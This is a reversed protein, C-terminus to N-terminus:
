AVSPFRAFLDCYDMPSISGFVLQCRADMMGMCMARETPKFFRCNTCNTGGKCGM